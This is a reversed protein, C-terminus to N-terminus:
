RLRAVIHLAERGVSSYESLTRGPVDAARAAVVPDEGPEMVVLLRSYRRGDWLAILDGPEAEGVACIEALARDLLARRLAAADGWDLERPQAGWGAALCRAAFAAGDADRGGSGEAPGAACVAAARRDYKECERM